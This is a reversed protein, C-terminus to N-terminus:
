EVFRGFTPVPSITGLQSGRVRLTCLLRQRQIVRWDIFLFQWGCIAAASDLDPAPM